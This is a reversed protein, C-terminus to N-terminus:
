PAPRAASMPGCHAHPKAKPGAETCPAAWSGGATGAARPPCPGPFRCRGSVHSSPSQCAGKTAVLAYDLCPRGPIYQVPQCGCSFPPADGGEGTLPRHVGRGISPFALPFPLSTSLSPYALSSSSPCLTPLPRYPGGGISPFPGLSPCRITMPWYSLLGLRCALGGGGGAPGAKRGRQVWIEYPPPPPPPPCSCVDPMACPPPNAHRRRPNSDSAPPAQQGRAM